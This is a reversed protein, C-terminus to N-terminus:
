KLLFRNNKSIAVATKRRPTKEQQKELKAFGEQLDARINIPSPERRKDSRSIILNKKIHEQNYDSM